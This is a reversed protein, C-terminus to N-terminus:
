LYPIMMMIMWIMVIIMMVMMMLMMLMIKFNFVNKFRKRYSNQAALSCRCDPGHVFSLPLGRTVNRLEEPLKWRMPLCDPLDDDDFTLKILM